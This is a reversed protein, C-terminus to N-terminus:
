KVEGIVRYTFKISQLYLFGKGELSVSIARVREERVPIADVKYYGDTMEEPVTCKIFYPKEDLELGVDYGGQRMAILSIGSIMKNNYNGSLTFQKTGFAYVIPKTYTDWGTDVNFRPLIDSDAMDVLKYCLFYHGGAIQHDVAILLGDNNGLIQFDTDIAMSGNYDFEPYIQWRFLSIRNNASKEDQYSSHYVFGNSTYDFVFYFDTVGSCLIYYNKWLGATSVESIENPLTEINSTISRINKDTLNSMSSLTYIKGDYASAWVLKNGCLKVTKPADCGIGGNLQTLSFFADQTIDVATGNAIEDASVSGSHYAIYYTEHPKFIVLAQGQKGFATIPYAQSGVYLYNNEPFYLPNNIDSWRLINKGYEGAVFLHIGNGIGANSGGYWEAIDMQCIEDMKSSERNATLEMNDSFGTSPLPIITGSSTFWITNNYENYNAFVTETQGEITISQSSDSQTGTTSITWTYVTGDTHTYKINIPRLMKTIPHFVKGVGDTTCLMKYETTLMNFGYLPTYESQVTYDEVPKVNIGVTPVYPSATEVTVTEYYNTFTYKKISPYELGNQTTLTGFWYLLGPEFSVFFGKTAHPSGFPNVHAHVFEGNKNYVDLEDPRLILSFGNSETFSSVIGEYSASYHPNSDINVSLGPRTTLAKRDNVTNYGWCIQDDDIDTFPVATNLGGSFDSYQKEYTQSKTVSPFRM